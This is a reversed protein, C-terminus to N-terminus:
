VTQRPALPPDAPAAIVAAASPIQGFLENYLGEFLKGSMNSVARTLDVTVDYADEEFAELRCRFTMHGDTGMSFSGLAAGAAESSAASAGKAAEGIWEQVKSAGEGLLELLYKQVIDIKLIMVNKSDGQWGALKRLEGELGLANNLDHQLNSIRQNKLNIFRGRGLYKNMYSTIYKGIWEQVKKNNKIWKEFLAGAAAKFGQVTMDGFGKMLAGYFDSEGKERWHAFYFKISSYVFYAALTGAAKRWNTLSINNSMINDGATELAKAIEFKEVDVKEGFNWAAIIEGMSQAMLDKAPSIIAEAVPGAYANVLFSFACDGIFKLWELQNVIVDYREADSRAAIGEVTWYRMYQRVIYKSTLRLQEKSARPDLALVDLQRLWREKDEPLSFKDIRDKLKEFEEEWGEFPDPDKGRLRLPVEATYKRGEYECEAPLLVVFFSGDDPECLVANPEFTYVFKDNFRNEKESYEYKKALSDEADAKGGLGGSGKLKGFSYGAGDPDIMAQDKGKVALTFEIESVQWKNDLGGTHEKEWCQVRVYRVDNKKGEQRSRVTLGEQYLNLSVYGTVPELAGTGRVSIGFGREEKQAFLDPTEPAKTLNRVTVRYVFRRDTKEFQVDLGEAKEASIDRLEPEKTADVIMFDASYSFGDGLIADFEKRDETLRFSGSGPQTEEAFKLGPRTVRFEVTKAFSGGEGTFSFTVGAKDGEYEAPVSVTASCYRGDMQVRHITLGQGSVSIKATLDDRDHQAGDVVEAIRAGVAVPEGGRPLADGFDKNTYMWYSKKKEKEKSKKKKGAIAIGAGAAAVAAGAGIIVIAPISSGKDEGAEEEAKHTVTVHVTETEPETKTEKATETEATTEAPLESLLPKDWRISILSRDTCLIEGFRKDLLAQARAKYDEYYSQYNTDREDYIAANIRATQSFRIYFYMGPLEPVTYLGVYFYSDEQSETYGSVEGAGEYTKSVREHRTVHRHAVAFISGDENRTIKLPEANDTNEAKWNEGWYSVCTDELKQLLSAFDKELDYSRRLYADDVNQKLDLFVSNWAYDYSGPKYYFTDQHSDSEECYMSGSELDSKALAEGYGEPIKWGVHAYQDYVLSHNEYGTFEVLTTEFFGAAMEAASTPYDMDNSTSLGFNEKEYNFRDLPFPASEEALVALPTLLIVAALLFASFVTRKKRIAFSSRRNM